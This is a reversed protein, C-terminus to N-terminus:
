NFHREKRNSVIEIETSSVGKVNAIDDYSYNTSKGSENFNSSESCSISDKLSSCPGTMNLRNYDTPIDTNTHLDELEEYHSEATEESQKRQNSKSEKSSCCRMTRKCVYTLILILFIFNAGLIGWLIPNKLIEKTGSAVINENQQDSDQTSSENKVTHDSSKTSYERKTTPPHNLDEKRAVISMQKMFTIQDITTQVCGTAKDCLERPCACKGDLCKKGYYPYDCVRTCNAGHFGPQCPVCTNNALLMEDACCPRFLGDCFASVNGNQSRSIIVLVIYYIKKM